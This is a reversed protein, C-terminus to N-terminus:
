TLIIEFYNQKAHLGLWPKVNMARVYLSAQAIYVGVALVDSLWFVTMQQRVSVCSPLSVM